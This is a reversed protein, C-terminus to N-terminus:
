GQDLSSASADKEPDLWAQGGTEFAKAGVQKIMSDDVKQLPTYGPHHSTKYPDNSRTNYCCVMSWRSHDSRNQDSRHLLNSHFFIADGPEMECYVLELRELCANVREMDAGAQDGTLIHDIRGMKHSGKIVQLCGNERTAKDVAIFVSVLDPYLLGNQYWYGYDQHWTWAGGIKPDKLIMKSHYHYVEDGLLEEAKNVVRNSRAFMGYIEDGPHNWLSLRVKGGEGDARSFSHNDLERDAHATSRLMEIEEADFLHKIRIFGNESFEDMQNNNLQRM